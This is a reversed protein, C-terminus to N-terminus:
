SGVTIELVNHVSLFNDYLNWPNWHINNEAKLHYFNSSRLPGPFAFTLRLLLFPYSFSGSRWTNWGQSKWWSFFKWPNIPFFTKQWEVTSEKSTGDHLLNIAKSWSHCWGALTLQKAQNVSAEFRFAVPDIGVWPRGLHDLCVVGCHWCLDATM